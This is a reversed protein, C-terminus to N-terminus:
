LYSIKIIEKQKKLEYSSGQKLVTTFPSITYGLGLRIRLTRKRGPTLIIEPEWLPNVEYIIKGAFIKDLFGQKQGQTTLIIKRAGKLKIAKYYPSNVILKSRRIKPYIQNRLVAFWLFLAAIVLLLLWSLGLALPNWDKDYYASWQKIRSDTNNIHNKDFNDIRDFNHNVVVLYGRYDGANMKPLFQLGVKKIVITSDANVRIIGNNVFEGDVYVSVLKNDIKNGDNDTFQLELYAGQAVAYDSFEFQLEKTLITTDSKVWLFPEFYVSEGFDIGELSQGGGINKTCSSFFLSLVFLIAIHYPKINKM